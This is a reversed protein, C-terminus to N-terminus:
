GRSAEVQQNELWLSYQDEDLLVRRGRRFIVMDFGNPKTLSKASHRPKSQHILWRVASETLDQHKQCFQTVTSLRRYRPSMGVVENSPSM